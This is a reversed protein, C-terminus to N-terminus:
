QYSTVVRAFEQGFARASRLAEELTNASTGVELLIYGDSLQQNFPVNRLNISRCLSPYTDSISEQLLVALSLNNKWDPHKHGLENTGVVFMIQAYKEGAIDTVAKVSEKSDRIIADRHVDIVFRISPYMELYQKVTSASESYANIFSESDHLTDCHLSTIGFRSLTEAIERGVRVVNKEKDTSRTEATEPYSTDYESYCECAHTHLILVLPEQSLSINELSSPIKGSLDEPNINFSTGNSLTYINDPSLDSSTIPYLKIGDVNGLPVSVSASAASEDPNQSSIPEQTDYSAPSLSQKAASVSPEAYSLTYLTREPVADKSNQGVFNRYASVTAQRAKYEITTAIQGGLYKKDIGFLCLLIASTFLLFRVFPHKKHAAKRFRKMQEESIYEEASTNGSIEALSPSPTVTINIRSKDYRLDQPSVTISSIPKKEYIM